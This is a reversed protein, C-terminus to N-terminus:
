SKFVNSFCWLAVAPPATISLLLHKTKTILSRNTHWNKKKLHAGCTSFPHKSTDRHKKLVWIVATADYWHALM